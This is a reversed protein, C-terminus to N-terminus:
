HESRPKRHKEQSISVRTNRRQVLLGCTQAAPFSLGDLGLDEVPFFGTNTKGTEEEKIQRNKYMKYCVGKGENVTKCSWTVDKSVRQPEGETLYQQKRRKTVTM